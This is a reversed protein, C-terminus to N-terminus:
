ARSSRSRGGRRSTCTSCISLSTAEKTAILMDDFILVAKIYNTTLNSPNNSRVYCYVYDDSVIQRMIFNMLWAKLDDAFAAGVPPMGNLYNIM